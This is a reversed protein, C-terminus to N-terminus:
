FLYIRAVVASGAAAIILLILNVFAQDVWRKNCQEERTKWGSSAANAHPFPVDPIPKNLFACLPGWGDEIDWELLREPPVLGRIMACHETPSPNATTKTATKKNHSPLPSLPIFLPFYSLPFPFTPSPPEPASSAVTQERGGRRGRDECV